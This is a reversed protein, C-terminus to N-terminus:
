NYNMFLLITLLSIVLMMAAYRYLWWADVGAEEGTELEYLFILRGRSENRREYKLACLYKPPVSRLAILSLTYLKTLYSYRKDCRIRELGKSM